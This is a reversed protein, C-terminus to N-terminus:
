TYMNFIPLTLDITHKWEQELINSFEQIVAYYQLVSFQYKFSTQDLLGRGEGGGVGAGYYGISLVCVCLFM